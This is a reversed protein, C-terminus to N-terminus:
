RRYRDLVAEVELPLGSATPRRWTTSHGAATREQDLGPLPNVLRRIVLDICAQELDYPLTREAGSLVYGATYTVRINESRSNMDPGGALDNVLAVCLPWTGARYILGERADEGLSYDTVAAGDVQIETVALIPYNRVPLLWRGNGRVWEVIDTRKQFRRGCYREFLETASNIQQEIRGQSFASGVIEQVAAVTTLAHPILSM